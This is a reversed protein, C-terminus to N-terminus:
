VEKFLDSIDAELEHIEKSVNYLKKRIERSDNLIRTRIRILNALTKTMKLAEGDRSIETKKQPIVEFYKDNNKSRKVRPM